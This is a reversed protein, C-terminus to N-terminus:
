SLVDGLATLRAGRLVTDSITCHSNMHGFGQHLTIVPGRQHGVNPPPSLRAQRFPACVNM